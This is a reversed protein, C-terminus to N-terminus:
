NGSLSVQAYPQAPAGDPEGATARQMKHYFWYSGGVVLLLVGISGWMQPGDGVAFHSYMAGVLDIVLGAYAWEKLRRLGPVLIVLLAALKAVGLFPVLYAPYGLGTIHAIAQPDSLADFVSGVGLTATMLGTCIWYAIKAKKM